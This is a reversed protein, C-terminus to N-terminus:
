AKKFGKFNIVFTKVDEQFTKSSLSLDLNHFNVYSDIPAVPRAKCTWLSMDIDAFLLKHERNWWSINEIKMLKAEERNVEDVKVQIQKEKEIIAQADQQEIASKLQNVMVGASANVTISGDSVMGQVLSILSDVKEEGLEKIMPISVKEMIGFIASLKNIVKYFPLQPKSDIEDTMEKISDNFKDMNNIIRFHIGVVKRGSKELDYNFTLAAHNNMDAKVKELVKMKFLDFRGKYKESIGLKLKLEKLEIYRKGIKRYQQLLKFIKPTFSCKVGSSHFLRFPTFNVNLEKIERHVEPTFAFKAVGDNMAVSSFWGFAVWNNTSEEFYFEKRRLGRLAEELRKHKSLDKLNLLSHLNISQIQYVKGEEDGDNVAAMSIDLLKSEILTLPEALRAEILKNSQVVLTKDSILKSPNKSM